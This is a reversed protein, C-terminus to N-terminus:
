GERSSTDPRYPIYADGVEASIPTSDIEVGIPLQAVILLSSATVLWAIALDLFDM